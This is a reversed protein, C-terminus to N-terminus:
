PKNIAKIQEQEFCLGILLPCCMACGGGREKAKMCPFHNYLPDHDMKLEDKWCASQVVKM